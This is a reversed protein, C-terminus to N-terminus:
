KAEKKPHAALWTAAALKWDTAICGELYGADRNKWANWLPAAVFKWWPHTFSSVQVEQGGDFLLFFTELDQHWYHLQDQRHCSNDPDVFMPQPKVAGLAYPSREQYVSPSWGAKIREWVKGGEGGTYVHLSDSFQVYTGVELGLRAAMYEQLISFHVVNAGYAGWILDNSRNCVTMNLRGDRVKFYANTNCPIDTSDIGAEVHTGYDVGHLDYPPRWMQLVARRSDPKQKLHNVLFDLQDVGFAKRWRYGYSGQMRHGDDSYNRFKPVLYEMFRVDDRGALLWLSEFLHLFPNADREKYFLVRELPREYYTAVPEDFELTDGNRSTQRHWSTGEGKDEGEDYELLMFLVKRLADNVGRAHIEM